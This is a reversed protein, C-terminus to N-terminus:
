SRFLRRLRRLRRVSFIIQNKRGMQTSERENTALFFPSSYSSFRSLRLRRPFESVPAAWVTTYRDPDADDYEPDLAGPTHSAAASPLGSRDCEPPIAGLGHPGPVCIPSVPGCIPPAFGCTTPLALHSYTCIPPALGALPLLRLLLIPALPLLLLAFPFLALNLGPLHMLLSHGLKPLM